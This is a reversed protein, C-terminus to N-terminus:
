KIPLYLKKRIDFYNLYDSISERLISKNLDSSKKEPFKLFFQKPMISEEKTPLTLYVFIKEKIVRHTSYRELYRRYILESPIKENLHCNICNEQLLPTPTESKLSFTILLLFLLINKVNVM